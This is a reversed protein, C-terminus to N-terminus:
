FRVSGRRHRFKSIQILKLICIEPKLNPVDMTTDRVLNM